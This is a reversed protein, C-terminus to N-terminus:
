KTTGHQKWYNRIRQGMKTKVPDDHDDLVAVWYGSALDGLIDEAEIISEKLKKNLKKQTVMFEVIDM